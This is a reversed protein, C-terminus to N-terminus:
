GKGREWEASYPLRALPPQPLMHWGVGEGNGNGQFRLIPVLQGSNLRNIVNHLRQKPVIEAKMPLPDDIYTPWCEEEFASLVLEQNGAPVRFRKVLWEGVRLERRRAEWVPKIDMPLPVASPPIPVASPPLPFASPPLRLLPAAAPADDCRGEGGGGRGPCWASRTAPSPLQEQCLSKRLEAAGASTLVFASTSLFTLGESRQFTRRPAGYLSTEQGHQAFGKSVLWRIDSTTMGASRLETIEIAFDWVDGGADTAYDFARLLESLGAILRSPVESHVKAPPSAGVVITNKVAAIEV